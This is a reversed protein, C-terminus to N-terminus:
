AGEADISDFTHGASSGSVERVVTKMEAGNGKM